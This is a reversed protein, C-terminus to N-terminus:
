PPNFRSPTRSEESQVAIPTDRERWAEPTQSVCCQPISESGCEASLLTGACGGGLQVIAPTFRLLRLRASLYFRLTNMHWTQQSVEPFVPPRSNKFDPGCRFQGQLYYFKKKEGKKDEPCSSPPPPPNVQM